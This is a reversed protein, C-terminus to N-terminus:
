KTLLKLSYKLSDPTITDGSANALTAVQLYGYGLTAINTAITYSNTNGQAAFAWTVTPASAFTSGDVSYKLTVTVTQTNTGGNAFTFQIAANEAKRVDLTALVNSSGGSAVTAPLGSISTYGYTQGFAPLGLACLATIIALKINKM